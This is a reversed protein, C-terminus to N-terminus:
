NGLYFYGSEQGPVMDPSCSNTMVSAEFDGHDGLPFDVKKVGDFREEVWSVIQSELDLPEGECCDYVLLYTPFPAPRNEFLEM